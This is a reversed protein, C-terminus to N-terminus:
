LSYSFGLLKLSQRSICLIRNGLYTISKSSAGTEESESEWVLKSIRNPAPVRSTIVFNSCTTYCM